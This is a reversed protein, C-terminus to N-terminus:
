AKFMDFIQQFFQRRHNRPSSEIIVFNKTPRVLKPEKEKNKWIGLLELGENARKPMISDPRAINKRNQLQSCRNM